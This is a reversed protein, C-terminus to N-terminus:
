SSSFNSSLADELKKCRFVCSEVGTVAVRVAEPDLDLGVVYEAGLMAAGLALIGTGCGLDCVTRGALDNFTYAAMHLLTSALRPPTQYQELHVDPKPHPKVKGLLIELERRRVLGVSAM